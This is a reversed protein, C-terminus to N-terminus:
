VRARRADVYAVAALLGRITGLLDIPAAMLALNRSRLWSRSAADDGGNISDLGRWLRLFYQGLEFPKSDRPLTYAGRRLRSASADSIGLMRALTGNSLDLSMAARVVAQSLVREEQARRDADIM